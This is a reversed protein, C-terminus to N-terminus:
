KNYKLIMELKSSLEKWETYVINLQFDGQEKPESIAEDNSDLIMRCKKFIDERSKGMIKLIKYPELKIQEAKEEKSTPEVYDRRVVKMSYINGMVGSSNIWSASTDQEGSTQNMTHITDLLQFAMEGGYYLPQKGDLYYAVSANGREEKEMELSRIRAYVHEDETVNKTQKIIYFVAGEAPVMDEYSKGSAGHEKLYDKTLKMMEPSMNANMGGVLAYEADNVLLTDIAQRLAVAFSSTGADINMCPGLFDYKNSIRGSVINDMYGPLCDEEVAPIYQNLDDRIKKEIKEKQEESLSTYFPDNKLLDLYEESRIRINVESSKETGMMKAVYVPIYKGKLKEQGIENIAEDATLLAIQQARDLQKIILPPMRFKLCPFKIDEIFSGKTPLYENYIRGIREGWRKEPYNEQVLSNEYREEMWQEKGTINGDMVGIAVVSIDIHSYDIRNEEDSFTGEVYEEIVASANVGGFGFANILASRRGHEKKKWVQESTNVKLCINTFDCEDPFAEFGYTAPMTDHLFSEMVKILNAMGAASFSHGIQHKVNGIYVTKDADKTGDYLKALSQLEVVDGVVTGTAHSEIYDLDVPTLGAKTIAGNMADYQGEESSAYISKGAGNNTSHIGTIVSYIKDGDRIADKLRKILVTSVGESLNLGHTNRDMPRSIGESVGGIKSFGVSGVVNVSGLAGSVVCMDLANEHLQKMAEELVLISSSCAGDVIMTGGKIGLLEELLYTLSSPIYQDVQESHYGGFKENMKDILSQKMEEVKADELAMERSAAEISECIEKGRLCLSYNAFSDDGLMNGIQLAVKKDKIQDVTYKTKEMAQCITDLIMIQMRNLKKDSKELIKTFRPNLKYDDICAVKISYTKDVATKDPSYYLKWDWRDKPVDKICNKGQHVMDWFKDTDNLDNPYVCGYGIIAVAEM